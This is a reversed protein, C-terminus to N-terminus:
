GVTALDSSRRSMGLDAYTRERATASKRSLIAVNPFAAQLVEPGLHDALTALSELSPKDDDKEWNRITAESRDLLYGLKRRSLQKDERLRRLTQGLTM